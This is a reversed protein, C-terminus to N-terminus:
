AEFKKSLAQRAIRTVFITVVVTALLGVAYLAWEAPTRGRQGASVNALSGL